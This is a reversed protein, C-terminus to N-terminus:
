PLFMINNTSEASAPASAPAEIDVSNMDDVSEVHTLTNVSSIGTGPLTSTPSPIVSPLQYSPPRELSSRTPKKKLGKSGKPTDLSYLSDTSSLRPWDSADVAAEYPVVVSSDGTGGGAINGTGTGRGSGGVDGMGDMFPVSSRSTMGGYVMVDGNMNHFSTVSNRSHPM